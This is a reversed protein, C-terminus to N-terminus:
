TQARTARTMRICAYEGRTPRTSSPGFRTLCAGSALTCSTALRWRRRRRSIQGANPFPLADPRSRCGILTLSLRPDAPTHPPPYGRDTSLWLMPADQGPPTGLRAGRGAGLVLEAIASAYSAMQTPSYPAGAYRNPLVPSPDSWGMSQVENWICISSLRARGSGWPASWRSTATLVFDQWDAFNKWPICGSRYNPQPPWPFGTCGPDIAWDPSGYMIFASAAGAAADRSLTDDFAALQASDYCHFHAYGLRQRESENRPTLESGGPCAIPAASPAVHGELASWFFNYRRLGSQLERALTAYRLGLGADDGAARLADVATQDDVGQVGRLAQLRLPAAAAAGAAAALTATLFVARAGRRARTASLKFTRDM